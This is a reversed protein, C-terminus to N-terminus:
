GPLWVSADRVGILHKAQLASRLQRYHSGPNSSDPDIVRRRHLERKWHEEKVVKITGPIGYNLPAPQGNSLLAEALAEVALKQKDTLKHRSANQPLQEKSVIFTRFPDGDEDPKFDFPELKYSTLPGEPQDNAKTVTATKIPGGSVTIETDTDAVKANSGREGRAEDKGTHGITLIHVNTHDIVSRLNALAINQDKAKNEDGGGAAIGKSWTDFVALIAEIGYHDEARKIADIIETICAKDM